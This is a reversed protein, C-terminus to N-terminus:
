INVERDSWRYAGGWGVAAGSGRVGRMRICSWLEDDRHLTIMKHMRSTYPFPGTDGIMWRQLGFIRRVMDGELHATGVGEAEDNSMILLGHEVEVIDTGSAGIAMVMTNLSGLRLTERISAATILKAKRWNGDQNSTTISGSVSNYTVVSTRTARPTNGPLPM